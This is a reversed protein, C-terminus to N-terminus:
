TAPLGEAAALYGAALAEQLWGYRMCINSINFFIVGSQRENKSEM